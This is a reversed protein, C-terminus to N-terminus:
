VHGFHMCLNLVLLQVVVGIALGSMSRSEHPKFARTLLSSVSDKPPPYGM